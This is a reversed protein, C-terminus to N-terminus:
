DVWNVNLNGKGEVSVVSLRLTSVSWHLMSIVQQQSLSAVLLLKSWRILWLNSVLWGNVTPILPCPTPLYVLGPICLDAFVCALYILCIHVDLKQSFGHPASLFTYIHIVEKGLFMDISAFNSFLNIVLKKLFLCVSFTGNKFSRSVKLIIWDFIFREHM